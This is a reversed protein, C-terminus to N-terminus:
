LIIKCVFEFLKKHKVDIAITRAWKRALSLASRRRWRPTDYRFRRGGELRVESVYAVVDEPRAVERTRYNGDGEILLRAGEIRRLRHLIHKGGYRFLVVMGSRLTREGLPSLVVVDRENRLFPRMSFGKVTMEVSRGEALMEEVSAFFLENPITKKREM